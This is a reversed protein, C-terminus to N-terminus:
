SQIFPKLIIIIYCVENDSLVILQSTNGHVVINRLPVSYEFLQISEILIITSKINMSKMEDQEQYKQLPNSSLPPLVINVFKLVRGTTTGVFIVDYHIGVSREKTKIPIINPDM